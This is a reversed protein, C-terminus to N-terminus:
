ADDTRECGYMCWHYQTHEAEESGVHSTNGNQIGARHVKVRNMDIGPNQAEIRALQAAELRDELREIELRLAEETQKGAMAPGDDDPHRLRVEVPPPEAAMLTAAALALTAHAVALSGEVQRQAVSLDHDTAEGMAADALAARERYETEAPSTV